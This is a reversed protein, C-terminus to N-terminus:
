SWKNGVIETFIVFIASNLTNLVTQNLSLTM